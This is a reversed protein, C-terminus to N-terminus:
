KGRCEMQDAYHNADAVILKSFAAAEAWGFAPLRPNSALRGVARLADVFQRRKYRIIFVEGRVQYTAVLISNIPDNVAKEPPQPVTIGDM